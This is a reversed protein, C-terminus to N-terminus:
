PAVRAIAALASEVRSRVLTDAQGDLDLSKLVTVLALRAGDLAQRAAETGAARTAALEDRLDAVLRTQAALEDDLARMREVLGEVIHARVHLASALVRESQALAELAREAPTSALLDAIAAM